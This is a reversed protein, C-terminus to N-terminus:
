KSGCVNTDNNWKQGFHRCVFCDEVNSPTGFCANEVSICHLVSSTDHNSHCNVFLKENIHIFLNLYLLASHSQLLM